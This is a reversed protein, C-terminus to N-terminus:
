PDVPEETPARSRTIKLVDGDVQFHWIDGVAVDRARLLLGVADAIPIEFEAQPFKRDRTKRAMAM